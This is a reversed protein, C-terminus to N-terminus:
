MLTKVLSKKELFLFEFNFIHFHFEKPIMKLQEFEFNYYYINDSKWIKTITLLFIYFSSGLFM